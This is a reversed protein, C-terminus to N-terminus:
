FGTRLKRPSAPMHMSLWKLRTRSQVHGLPSYGVVTRQGKPNELCSDWQWARRWPIKGVSPSLGAARIDGENAPLNKVVLAVQSAEGWPLLVRFLLFDDQSPCWSKSSPTHLSLQKLRTRNKAIRHVTAWWPGRDMSNELCSYQLPNCTRRWPIKRVWPNIGCRKHRRWQGAPEGSTGSPFGSPTHFPPSIKKFLNQQERTEGSMWKNM